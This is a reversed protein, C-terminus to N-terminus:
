IKLTRYVPNVIYNVFNKSMVSMAPFYEKKDVAVYM